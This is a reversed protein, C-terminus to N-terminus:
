KKFVKTLVPYLIYVGSLGVLVYLLTTFWGTGFIATVLNFNWIGILLWNISGVVVLIFAIWDLVNM